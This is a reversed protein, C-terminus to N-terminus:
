PPTHRSPKPPNLFSALFRGFQRQSCELFFAPGMSSPYTEEKLDAGMVVIIM